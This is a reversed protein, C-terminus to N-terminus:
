LHRRDLRGHPRRCNHLIHVNMMTEMPSFPLHPFVRALAFCPCVRQNYTLPFFRLDPTRSALLSQMAIIDSDEETPIHVM